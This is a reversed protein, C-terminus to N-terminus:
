LLAEAMSADALKTIGMRGTRSSTRMVVGSSEVALYGVTVLGMRM